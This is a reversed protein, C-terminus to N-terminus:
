DNLIPLKTQQNINSELQDADTTDQVTCARNDESISLIRYNQKLLETLKVSRDLADEPLTITKIAM